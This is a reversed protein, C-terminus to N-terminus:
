CLPAGVPAYMQVVVSVMEPREHQPDGPPRIKLERLKRTPEVEVPVVEGDAGEKWVLFSFKSSTEREIQTQVFKEDRDGPHERSFRELAEALSLDEPLELARSSAGHSDGGFAGRAAGLGGPTLVMHVRAVNAKMSKAKFM